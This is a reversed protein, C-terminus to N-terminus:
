LGIIDTTMDKGKFSDFFKKSNEANYNSGEGGYMIVLIAQDTAVMYVDAKIDNGELQNDLDYQALAEDGLKIGRQDGVDTVTAEASGGFASIMESAFQEKISEDTLAKVQDILVSWDMEVIAYAEKKDDTEYSYMKMTMDGLQALEEAAQEEMTAKGPMSVTFFTGTNETWDAAADNGGGGGCGALVAMALAMLLAMTKINKM